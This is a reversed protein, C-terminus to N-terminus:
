FLNLHIREIKIGYNFKPFRKKHSYNNLPPDLVAAAGLISSKTIMTLPKWCNVIIVFYEMKSTAVTRSRGINIRQSM